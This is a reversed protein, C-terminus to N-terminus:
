GGLNYGLGILLHLATNTVQAHGDQVPVRVYSATVRGEPLIFWHESFYFKKAVDAELTPGSLYYGKNFIGRNEPFVQNRITSEPHTIVVGGGVSFTFSQQQWLRNLTLLNFGDTISFRQVEPPKNRLIIKHHTFKLGWGKNEQWTGVRIDYYVPSKFPESKYKAKIKLATENNQNIKLPTKFNAIAGGALAVEWTRVQSLCIAPLFLLWILLGLYHKESSRM